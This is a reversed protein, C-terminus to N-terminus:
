LYRRLADVRYKLEKLQEITMGCFYANEIIILNYTLIM